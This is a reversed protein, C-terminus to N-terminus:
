AQSNCPFGGVTRKLLLTCGATLGHHISNILCGIGSPLAGCFYLFHRATFLDCACGLLMFLFAFPLDYLLNTLREKEETVELLRSRLEYHGGYKHELVIQPQIHM